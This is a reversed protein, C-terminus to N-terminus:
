SSLQLVIVGLPLNAPPLAVFALWLHRDRRALIIAAIALPPFIVQEAFISLGVPSFDIGFKPIPQLETGRAKAALVPFIRGAM